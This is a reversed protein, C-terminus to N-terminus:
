GDLQTNARSEVCSIPILTGPDPNATNNPLWLDEVIGFRYMDALRQGQLAVNARRSYQLREIEPIQGSYPTLGDLARLDKIHDTFTGGEVAGGEALAVKALILHMQRTSALTLPTRDNSRVRLASITALATLTGNDIPDELELLSPAAVPEGRSNIQFAM